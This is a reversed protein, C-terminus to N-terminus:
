HVLKQDTHYDLSFTTYSKLSVERRVFMALSAEKWLYKVAGHKGGMHTDDENYTDDTSSDIVFNLEM